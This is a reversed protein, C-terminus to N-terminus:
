VTIGFERRKKGLKKYQIEPFKEGALGWGFQRDHRLHCKRCMERWDTTKRLYNYSINAWDINENSGCVDCKKPKGQYRYIWKHRAHYGANEKHGHHKKGMKGYMHNRKGKQKCSQCWKIQYGSVVKGCGGCIPSYWYTQGKNKCDRSCFRGKGLKIKSPWTKFEKECTRCKKIEAMKVFFGLMISNWDYFPGIIQWQSEDVSSGGPLQNASTVSGQYLSLYTEASLIDFERNHTITITIVAQDGNNLAATAAVTATTSAAVDGLIRPKIASPLIDRQSARQRQSNARAKETVTLDSFGGQPRPPRLNRFDAM